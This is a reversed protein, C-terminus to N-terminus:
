KIAIRKMRNSKSIANKSGHANTKLCRPIYPKTTIDTNKAIKIALAKHVPVPREGSAWRSIDPAHSKILKAIEGLTGRRSQQLYESLKM